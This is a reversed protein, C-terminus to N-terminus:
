LTPIPKRHLQMHHAHCLFVVDLPKNYDPHHADVKLSGCVKCPEKPVKKRAEVRAKWKKPNAARYQLMYAKKQERRSEKREIDRKRDCPKCRPHLFGGTPRSANFYFESAPKEKKCVTCHGMKVKKM